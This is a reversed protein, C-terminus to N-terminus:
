LSYGVWIRISRGGDDRPGHSSSSSSEGGGTAGGGGTAQGDTDKRVKIPFLQSVHGGVVLRGIKRVVTAQLRGFDIRDYDDFYTDLDEVGFVMFSPMWDAFHLNPYLRYLDLSTVINWAPSPRMNAEGAMRWLTVDADGIFNRRLGLLDELPDTFPWSKAHGAIEATLTLYDFSFKLHRPAVPLRGEAGYWDVDAKIRPIQGFVTGFNYLDLRGGARIQRAHLSLGTGDDRGWALEQYRYEAAGALAAAFEDGRGPVRDTLGIDRYGARVALNELLRVHAELGSSNWRFPLALAIAEGWFVGDIDLKEVRSDLRLVVGIADHPTAEVRMDYVMDARDSRRSVGSQVDLTAWAGAIPMRVGLWGDRSSSSVTFDTRSLGQEAFEFRRDIFRWRLVADGMSSPFMGGLESRDAWGRHDAIDILNLHRFSSYFGRQEIPMTGDFSVAQAWVACCLCCILGAIKLAIRM